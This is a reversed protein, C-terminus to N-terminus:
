IHILSLMSQEMMHRILLVSLWRALHPKTMFPTPTFCLSFPLCKRKLSILQLVVRLQELNDKDEESLAELVTKNAYAGAHM